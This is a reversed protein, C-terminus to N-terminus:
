EVSIYPNLREYLEEYILPIERLQSASSFPGKRIRRDIIAKAIYYDIYPHDRLEQMGAVNINLKRVLDSDAFVGQKILVLRSSDLGYVEGLQDPGSFGGLKERYRIIRRAFAPGIGRVRTLGASDASNLEVLRSEDLPRFKAAVEDKGTTTIATEVSNIRVYPELIEYIDDDVVFLKKLDEKNRFVAGKDRYRVVAAAQRSSFGLRQWGAADLTNPDFPFPSFRASLASHDPRSYDFAPEKLEDEQQKALFAEAERIFAPDSVLEPQMFRAHIRPIFALVITLFVVILIANREAKGFHLYEKVRYRIQKDRRPKVM